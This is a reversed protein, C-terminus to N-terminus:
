GSHELRLKGESKETRLNAPRQWFCCGAVVWNKMAFPFNACKCQGTSYHSPQAVVVKGPPWFWKRRALCALVYEAGKRPNLSGQRVKM